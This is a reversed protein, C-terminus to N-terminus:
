PSKWIRSVIARAKCDMYGGVNWGDILLNLLWYPMQLNGSCQSSTLRRVDDREQRQGEAVESLQLVANNDYLVFGSGLLILGDLSPRVNM